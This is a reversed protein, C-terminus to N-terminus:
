GAAQFGSPISGNGYKTRLESEGLPKKDLFDDVIRHVPDDLRSKQEEIQAERRVLGKADKDVNADNKVCAYPDDVHLVM